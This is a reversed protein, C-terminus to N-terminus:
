GATMVRWQGRLFWAGQNEAWGDLPRETERAYGRASVLPSGGGDTGEIKLHANQLAAYVADYVQAAEEASVRSWAYVELTMGQVASSINGSGTLQEFVVMPYVADGVDADRRHSTYVRDAVLAEVGADDMLVRRVLHKVEVISNPM